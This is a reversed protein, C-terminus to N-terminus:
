VCVCVCVGHQFVVLERQRGPVDIPMCVRQCVVCDVALFLVDCRASPGHHKRISHVRAVAFCRSLVASVASLFPNRQGWAGKSVSDRLHADEVCVCVRVCACVCVCVCVFV